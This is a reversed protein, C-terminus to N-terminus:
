VFDAQSLCAHNVLLCRQFKTLNGFDPFSQEAVVSDCIFLYFNLCIDDIDRAVINLANLTNLARDFINKIKLFGQSQLNDLIQM